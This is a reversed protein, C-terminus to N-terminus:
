LRLNGLQQDLLFMFRVPFRTIQIKDVALLSVHPNASYLRPSCWSSLCSSVNYIVVTTMMKKTKTTVLLHTRSVNVSVGQVALELQPKM